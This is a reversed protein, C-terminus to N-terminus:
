QAWTPMGNIAPKTGSCSEKKEETCMEGDASDDSGDPSTKMIGKEQAFEGEYDFDFDWKQVGTTLGYDKMVYGYVVNVFDWMIWIDLDGKYTDVRDLVNNYIKMTPVETIDHLGCSKFNVNCDIAAVKIIANAVASFEAVVPIKKQCVKCSKDYFFAFYHANQENFEKLTKDNLHFINANEEWDAPEEQVDPYDNPNPTDGVEVLKLEMVLISGGPVRVGNYTRGYKGFHLGAPLFLEWLDGERMLQMAEGMGRLVQLPTFKSPKANKFGDVVVTGDTLKGKYFIKCETNATPKKASFDGRELVRYQLGSKLQHVGEKDENLKLWETGQDLLLNLEREKKAEKAEKTEEDVVKTMKQEEEACACLSALAVAVCALLVKM